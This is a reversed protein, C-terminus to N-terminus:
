TQQPSEFILYSHNRTMQKISSTKKLFPWFNCLIVWLGMFFLPLVGIKVDKYPDVLPVDACFNSAFGHPPSTLFSINCLSM